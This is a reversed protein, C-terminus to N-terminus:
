CRSCRAIRSSSYHTETNKWQKDYCIWKPPLCLTRFVHFTHPLSPYPDSYSSSRRRPLFSHLKNINFRFVIVAVCFHDILNLFSFAFRSCLSKTVNEHSRNDNADAIGDNSVHWVICAACVYVYNGSCVTCVFSQDSVIWKTDMLCMDACENHLISYTQGNFRMREKDSSM